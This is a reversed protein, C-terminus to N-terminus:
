TYNVVVLFLFVKTLKYMVAVTHEKYYVEVLFVFQPLTVNMRALTRIYRM